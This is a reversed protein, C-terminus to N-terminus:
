SLFFEFPKNKEDKPNAPEYRVQITLWVKASGYGEIMRRIDTGCDSTIAGLAIDLDPKTVSFPLYRLQTFHLMQPRIRTSQRWYMRHPDDIVEQREAIADALEARLRPILDQPLAMLASSTFYRSVNVMSNLSTTLMSVRDDFQSINM